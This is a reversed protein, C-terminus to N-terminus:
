KTKMLSILSKITVRKKQMPKPGSIINWISTIVKGKESKKAMHISVKIYAKSMKLAKSQSANNGILFSVMIAIVQQTTLLCFGIKM